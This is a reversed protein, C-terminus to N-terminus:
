LTFPVTISARTGKGPESDIELVGGLGEMRERINFLGFGGPDTEVRQDLKEPSFGKGNDEVLIRLNEGDAELLIEISCPGAYKLANMLLERTSQFLLSSLRRSLPLSGTRDTVHISTGASLHKQEALYSLAAGLGVEYLLTPVLENMMSRCEAIADETLSRVKKLDDAERSRGTQNLSDVIGGMRINALSLMQVVQDHLYQAIRAREREETRILKDALQRSQRMYRDARIEAHKRQTIDTGTCLLGSVDGQEDRIARISWHIWLWSNDACRNQQDVDGHLEPAAAIEYIAQHLDAGDPDRPLILTELLSRGILDERSYGFLRVGYDNIFRISFQKDVHMVVTNAQEVLMRYNLHSEEAAQQARRIPTIDNLVFLRGVAHGDKNKINSIHPLVWKLTGAKSSICLAGASHLEGYDEELCDTLENRVSDDTLEDFLFGSIIEQLLVHKLDSQNLGCMQLFASTAHFIRGDLDTWVAAIGMPELLRLVEQGQGPVDQCADDPAASPKKQDSLRKNAM